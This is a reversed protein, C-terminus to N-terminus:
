GFLAKFLGSLSRKHGTDVRAVVSMGARLTPMGPETDIRLRIPIRQVVKVWNGSTNQPPLLAFESGSAPSLSAVTGHWEVDPYTDVTITVADGAKVYTLDTEKPNAEVWVHDTAVLSFAAAGPALYQGPQLKDVNTVIGGLSAKVVTRRLDRAAQDRRAQAQLYRPHQEPAINPDGSLNAAIMALQQRDSASQQRAVDLNRRANDYQARSVFSKAVLENQRQEEREYFSINVQDSKIDEQKQRYSAKLAEIDNRVQDLQAQANALAIRFPEDDLHFLEDGVKVPQNNRVAVAAVMGAVDNAVNVMDAKVYANDIAVYRGGALYLYTAVVVLALPGIVLLSWRLSQRLVDARSRSFDSAPAEAGRLREIGPLARAVRLVTRGADAM